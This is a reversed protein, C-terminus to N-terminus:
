YVAFGVFVHAVVAGSAILLIAAILKSARILGAMSLIGLVAGGISLCLLVLGFVRALGFGGADFQTSALSLPVTSPVLFLVWLFLM